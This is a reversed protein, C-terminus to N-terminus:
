FLIYTGNVTILSVPSMMRSTKKTPEFYTYITNLRRSKNCDVFCHLKFLDAKSILKLLVKRRTIGHSFSVINSVHICGSCLHWVTLLRQKRLPWIGLIQICAVYVINTSNNRKHKHHLCKQPKGYHTSCWWNLVFLKEFDGEERTSM